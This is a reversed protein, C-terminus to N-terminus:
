AKSKSLSAISSREKIRLLVPQRLPRLRQLQRLQLRRPHPVRLLHAELRLGPPEAEAAEEVEAALVAREVRAAARHSISRSGSTPLLSCRAPSQVMAGHM